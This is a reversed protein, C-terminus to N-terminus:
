VHTVQVQDKGHYPEQVHMRGMDNTLHNTAGTDMFWPRDEHYAAASNGSRQDNAQYVQNFRTRYNLAVSYGRSAARRATEAGIGSAGGTILLVRTM